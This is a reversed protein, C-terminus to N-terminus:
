HTAVESSNPANTEESTDVPAPEPESEPDSESEPDIEPKSESSESANTDETTGSVEEADADSGYVVNLKHAKRQDSMATNMVYWDFLERQLEDDKTRVIERIRVLSDIIVDRYKSKLILFMVRDNHHCTTGITQGDVETSFIENNWTRLADRSQQHLTQRSEHSDRSQGRSQGRSQQPRGDRRDDRRGDFRGDRRGDFRGDRRGDDRGDDRRDVRRGDDRYAGHSAGRSVGRSAGFQNTRSSM